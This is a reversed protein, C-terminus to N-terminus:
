ERTHLKNPRKLISMLNLSLSVFYKCKFVFVPFALIQYIIVGVKNVYSFRLFSFLIKFQLNTKYAEM